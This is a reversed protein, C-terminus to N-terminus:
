PITDLEGWPLKQKQAEKVNFRITKFLKHMLYGESVGLKGTAPDIFYEFLTHHFGAIKPV